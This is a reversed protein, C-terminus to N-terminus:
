ASSSTLSATAMLIAWRWPSGGYSIGRSFTQRTPFSATAAGPTTANLLVAIQAGSNFILDPKGDGNIDAVAVDEYYGGGASTVFTQRPAFSVTAAGPPTTNLFVSVTKDNLNNVIIDPKGDGNVDAIAVSTPAPGTAFTQQPAFSATAAGTPTTNLRVSLTNDTATVIVFDPKGDGNLDGVAVSNPLTGAFNQPASFTVSPVVREELIDVRL